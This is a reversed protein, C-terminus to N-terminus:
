VDDGSAAAILNSLYDRMLHDEIPAALNLQALAKVEAAFEDVSGSLSTPNVVPKGDADFLVMTGAHRYGTALAPPVHPVIDAQNVYRWYNGLLGNAYRVYDSNGVRPQGYTYLGNVLPKLLPDECFRTAAILAMAGGLSHGCLWVAKNGAGAAGLWAKVMTVIQPLVKEAGQLFGAHVQGQPVGGAGNAGGVLYDAFRADADTIWDGIVSPETGRFAVVIEEPGNFAFAQINDVAAVFVSTLSVPTNFRQDLDNAIDQASPDYAAESCHGLIVADQPDFGSSSPSFSFTM